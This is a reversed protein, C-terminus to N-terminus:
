AHNKNRYFDWFTFGYQLGIEMPVENVIRVESKLKVVPWTPILMIRGNLDTESGLYGETMRWALDLINNMESRADYEHKVHSDPDYAFDNAYIGLHAASYKTEMVEEPVFIRGLFSPDPRIYMNSETSVGNDEQPVYSLIHGYVIDHHDLMKDMPLNNKNLFRDVAMNLSMLQKDYFVAISDAYGEFSYGVSKDGQYRDTFYGRAYGCIPTGNPIIIERNWQDMHETYLAIFLGMQGLAVESPGVLIQLSLDAITLGGVFEEYNGVFVPGTYSDINDNLSFPKKYPSHHVDYNFLTTLPSQHKTSSLRRTIGNDKKLIM